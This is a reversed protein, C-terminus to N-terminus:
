LDDWLRKLLPVGAPPVNLLYVDPNTLTRWQEFGFTSDFQRLLLSMANGHTSLLISNGEEMLVQELVAHMRQSAQYSSEGGTFALKPDDFTKKLKDLWDPLQEMSLVREALRPEPEISIKKENAILEVTQVARTFPSSLIRDLEIESFFERLHEAQTNGEDTLIADAEQGSAQCHRVIYINKM